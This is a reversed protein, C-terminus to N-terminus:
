RFLGTSRRRFHLTVTGKGRVFSVPRGTDDRIETEIMGVERSMVPIYQVHEFRMTVMEAHQETKPVIGYLPVIKDGVVRPDVM